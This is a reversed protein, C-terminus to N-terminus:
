GRVGTYLPSRGKEVARVLLIGKSLEDHQRNYRYELTWASEDLDGYGVDLYYSSREM